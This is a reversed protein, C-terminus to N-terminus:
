TCFDYVSFTDLNINYLATTDEMERHENRTKKSWYKVILMSRGFLCHDRFWRKGGYADTDFTVLYSIQDKVVVHKIIKKVHSLLVNQINNNAFFPGTLTPVDGKKVVADDEILEETLSELIGDLETIDDICNAM